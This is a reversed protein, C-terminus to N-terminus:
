LEGDPDLDLAARLLALAEDGDLTRDDGPAYPRHHAAGFEGHRLEPYVRGGSDTRWKLPAGPHMRGDSDTWPEGDPWATM